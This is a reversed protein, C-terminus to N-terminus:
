QRIDRMLALGEAAFRLKLGLEIGALLGKELGVREATTIFTMGKEKEFEHIENWVLEALPKPLTMMREMLTYLQRVQEASYGREYLGKVLRVQAVRRGEDDHANQLTKLHALVVVAIPNASSELAAENRAYDLLKATPFPIGVETGWLEYGFRDPRWGPRDDGLIAFSAVKQNYRDFLRYNYVYMRKAFDAEPQSQFEIHVLVWEVQGNTRLVKFLKDAVRRGQESAPTIEQLEQELPDHPQTWDIERHAKPFFFAMFPEFLTDLTEKWASDFDAM